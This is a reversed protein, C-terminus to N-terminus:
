ENMWEEYLNFIGNFMVLINRCTLIPKKGEAPTFFKILKNFLAQDRKNELNTIEVDKLFQRLNTM